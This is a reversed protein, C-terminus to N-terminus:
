FKLADYTRSDLFLISDRPILSFHHIQVGKLEYNGTVPMLGKKHDRTVIEILFEHYVRSAKVNIVRDVIHISTFLDLLETVWKKIEQKGKYEFPGWTLVANESFSELMADIQHKELM